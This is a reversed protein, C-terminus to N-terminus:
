DVRRTCLVSDPGGINEVVIRLLGVEELLHALALAKARDVDGEDIADMVKSKRGYLDAVLRHNTEGNM